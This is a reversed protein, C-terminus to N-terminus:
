RSLAVRGLSVAWEVRTLLAAVLTMQEVLPVSPLESRRISIAAKEVFAARVASTLAFTSRNTRKAPSWYWTNLAYM